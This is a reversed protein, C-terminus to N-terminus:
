GSTQSTFERTAVGAGLAGLSRGDITIFTSAAKGSTIKVDVGTFYVVSGAALMKGADAYQPEGDISVNIWVVDTVRVGVVIPRAQPTPTPLPTSPPGAAVLQATPPGAAPRQDAQIQRWAYGAFGSVVLVLAAARRSRFSLASWTRM